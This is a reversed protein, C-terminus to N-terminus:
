YQPISYENLSTEKILGSEVSFLKHGSYNDMTHWLFTRCAKEEKDSDNDNDSFINDGLKWLENDTLCDGAIRITHVWGHEMWSAFLYLVM